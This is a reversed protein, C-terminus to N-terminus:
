VVSYFILKIGLCCMKQYTSYKQYHGFNHHLHNGSQSRMFPKYFSTVTQLPTLLISHSTEKGM